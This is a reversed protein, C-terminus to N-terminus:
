YENFYLSLLIFNFLVLMFYFSIRFKNLSGEIMITVLEVGRPRTNKRPRPNPQPVPTQQPPSPNDLLTQVMDGWYGESTYDLETGINEYNTQPPPQQTRHQRSPALQNFQSMSENQFRIMPDQPTQFFSTQQTNQYSTSGTTDYPARYSSTDAQQSFNYPEQHLM